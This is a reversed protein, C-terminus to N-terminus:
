GGDRRRVPPGPRNVRGGHSWRGSRLAGADRNQRSTRLGAHRAFAAAPSYEASV